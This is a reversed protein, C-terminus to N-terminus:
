RDFAAVFRSGRLHARFSAFALSGTVPRSHPRSSLELALASAISLATGLDFGLFGM